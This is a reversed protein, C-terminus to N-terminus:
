ISKMKLINLKLINKYIFIKKLFRFCYNKKKKFFLRKAIYALGVRHIRKIGQMLLNKMFFHKLNLILKRKLQNKM